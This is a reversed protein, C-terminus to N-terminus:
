RELLKGSKDEPLAGTPFFADEDILEIIQSITQTPFLVEGCYAIL